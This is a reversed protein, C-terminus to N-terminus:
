LRRLGHARDGSGRCAFELMVGHHTIVNPREPTFRQQEGVAAAVNKHCKEQEFM